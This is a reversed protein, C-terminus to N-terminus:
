TAGGTAGQDAGVAAAIADLRAELAAFRGELAVMRLEDLKEHLRMIEIEAKLNVEYDHAAALRDKEAQRNQSMMIVPAQVAALMSLILNLFVFPYPDIAAVLIVTNLAVWGLLVLAFIGIFAWSGGFAAVRDAIRAGLDSEPQSLDRAVTGHEAVHRLVRRDRESLEEFSKRLLRESLIRLKADM